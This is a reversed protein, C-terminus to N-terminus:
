SPTEANTDRCFTDKATKLYQANYMAKKEALTRKRDQKIAAIKAQKRVHLAERRADVAAAIDPTLLLAFQHNLPRLGKDKMVDYPPFIFLGM